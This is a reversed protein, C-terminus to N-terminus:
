KSKVIKSVSAIWKKPGGEEYGSRGLEKGAANLFLVTPFGQVGYKSALKENQQKLKAPQPTSQPFDLSLLVVNAKAWKKFEATKFVEKDLRICWTCWDSGTFDVLIPKNTKKAMAVAKDYSTLWDSGKALASGSLVLAAALVGSLKFFPNLKM